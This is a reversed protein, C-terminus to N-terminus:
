KAPASTPRPTWWADLLVLMERVTRPHEAALNKKETPDAALDYLETPQSDDQPVILKWRGRRMWRHTVNRDPNGLVVDDHEFVEGFVAQRDSAARDAAVELLNVGTMEAPPEVGCVRLITPALDIASALFECRAPKVRGPWHLFIPTRVGGDYPSRKSKPAFWGQRQAPPVTAQIWGNDVIFAILTNELLKKQHLYDVLEGCTEDLWECMAWYAALRPHRGAATYKSLLREPPTHPEHPLFPAYWVFFPADGGQEIFDYIPQLGERGIVLGPGGHREGEPTMGHSFGANAYSGEWLKGTQFTRYGARGLLRPLTPVDRIFAQSATRDAVRDPPDNGCIRTRHGYQGTIISALSARCLPATVYGHPFLAGQTALRDLNPTRIVPHGMFGFDTWAQDDSIILIVNPRTAAWTSLPSCLVVALLCLCAAYGPSSIVSARPKWDM